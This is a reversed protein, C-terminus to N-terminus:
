HVKIKIIEDEKNDYILRIGCKPFTSIPCSIISTKDVVAIVLEDLIKIRSKSNIIFPYYYSILPPVMISCFERRDINFQVMKNVSMDYFIVYNSSSCCIVSKTFYTNNFNRTKIFKFSKWDIVSLSISGNDELYIFHNVYKGFIALLNDFVLMIQQIKTMM